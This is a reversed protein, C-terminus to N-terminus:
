PQRAKNLYQASRRGSLEHPLKSGYSINLSVFSSHTSQLGGVKRLSAYLADM